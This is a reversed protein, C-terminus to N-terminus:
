SQLSKGQHLRCTMKKERRKPTSIMKELLLTPRYIVFMFLLILVIAYFHLKMKSGNKIRMAHGHKFLMHLLSNKHEDSALKLLTECTTSENLECILTATKETLEYEVDMTSTTNHNLISVSIVFQLFHLKMKSRSDKFQEEKLLYM